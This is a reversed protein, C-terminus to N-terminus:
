QLFPEELLITYFRNPNVVGNTDSMLTETGAAAPTSGLKMRNTTSLDEVTDAALLAYKRAKPVTNTSSSWTVRINDMSLRELDLIRLLSTPDNPDTGALYESLDSFGDGDFDSAQNQDLNGFHTMEWDDPLGDSDSDDSGITLTMPITVATQSYVGNGHILGAFFLLILVFTRMGNDM